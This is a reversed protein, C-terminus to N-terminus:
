KFSQCVDVWTTDHTVALTANDTVAPVDRHWVHDTPPGDCGGSKNVDVYYDVSYAKGMELLGTWTYSFTGAAGTDLADVVAHTLVAKTDARSVVVEFRLGNHVDFGAGTFTLDRRNAVTAFSACEDVWMVDHKVALAVNAAVAPIDRHWVHDTPPADCASNKSLDGYYDVSYAVGSKLLGPWSLTFDGSMLSDYSKSAVLEKTDARSVAVQFLGNLHPDFGTAAFSLDYGQASAATGGAGGSGGTGATSGGSGGTTSTGGTGAAAGGSGGTTSTGGTGAAANGGTGAAATGGSGAQSSTDTADDSSCGGVLLASATLLSLISPLFFTKMM